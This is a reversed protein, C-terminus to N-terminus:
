RNDIDLQLLTDEVKRIKGFLTEFRYHDASIIGGRKSPSITISYFRLDVFKFFLNMLILISLPYRCYYGRRIMLDKKWKNKRCGNLNRSLVLSNYYNEKRIQFTCRCNISLWGVYYSCYGMVRVLSLMMLSIYM